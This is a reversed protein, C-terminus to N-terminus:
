VHEGKILKEFHETNNQGVYLVLDKPSVEIIKTTENLSYPCYNWRSRSQSRISILEFYQSQTGKLFYGCKPEPNFALLKVALSEKNVRVVKILCMSKDAPDDKFQMEYIRGPKIIKRYKELTQIAKYEEKIKDKLHKINIPIYEVDTPFKVGYQGSDRMAQALKPIWKKAAMLVKLAHELKKINKKM